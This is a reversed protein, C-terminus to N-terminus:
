KSLKLLRVTMYLSYIILAATLFWIGWGLGKAIGLAVQISMYSLYASMAVILAKSVFLGQVTAMRIKEMQEPTLQELQKRPLNILKKPDETGAIWLTLATMGLSTVAMILPVIYANIWNKNGWGDPLGSGGFHTPIQAPLEAYHVAPYWFSFIILALVVWEWWLPYCRNLKEWISQKHM